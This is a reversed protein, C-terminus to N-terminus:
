CENKPAFSWSRVTLRPRENTQPISSFLNNRPLVEWTMERGCGWQQQRKVRGGAIKVGNLQSTTLTNSIVQHKPDVQWRWRETIQSVKSHFVLLPYSSKHKNIMQKNQLDVEFYKRCFDM